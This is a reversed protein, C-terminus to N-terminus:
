DAVVARLVRDHGSYDKIVDFKNIQKLSSVIEAVASAQGSGIEFLLLGGPRVLETARVLWLRLHQLGNEASFLAMGPEFERVARDVRGDEPCIYPPNALVLDLKGGLALAVEASTLEACDVRQFHCRDAVGLNCANEHAIQLAAESLDVAMARAEGLEAVLSLALCGSGTGMDLLRVDAAQEKCWALAEDVLHETEPRPILVDRTVKFTRKYFEKEGFLYAVPEGSARRRVLERCRDLETPSVPYDMKLYLEVRTWGLAKAIILESDLRASAIRKQKFFQTTKQLIEQVKM